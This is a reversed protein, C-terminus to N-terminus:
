NNAKLAALVARRMVDVPAKQGTWLEFQNAGQLVFMAVGNITRCKRAEAAKLLCTKLPNYVIDMVVMDKSLDEKPIPTAGTEPHMGVPTTNILIEYRDPHWDNLPLFEAKLDGALHEGATRSRNLITVRGGADALGFGIARAAGGAGILAVSKGQITTQARLAKLAGACDTNYGILRGQDNVITNVAGIRAATEDVEDLYEMVAVKHPLTVSVGKFNLAKIGKIASGPDTVRFALYVGNFDIAAFAQNHMAPSLSHVVPNGILGFLSTHADIM